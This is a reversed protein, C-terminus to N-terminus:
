VCRQHFKDLSEGGKAYRTKTVRYGDKTKKLYMVGPYSGGSYNKLLSGYLYYLHTYSVSM